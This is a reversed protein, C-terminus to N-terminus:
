KNNWGAKAFSLFIKIYNRANFSLSKEFGAQSLANLNNKNEVMWEMKAALDDVDAPKFLIGAGQSLLESIGGLDSALVPLGSAFARQIANPCNEYVLSPYVLCDCSFLFKEAQADGPWAFFKINECKGAQKRAENELSGSGVFLLEIDERKNKIKYFAKILPLVGKHKEIQGLFLFKFKNQNEATKARNLTKAVPNPLVYIRSRAFFNKKLHSKKLWDSPFIVTQPSNFLLRCITQYIVAAFGDVIGEQGFYMLGSAHLLQIDHVIHSHRIKLNRAALPCLFGVGMLNNTIVAECKEAGLIKKIKFYNIINFLNWVHWFFRFFKPFKNLNYYLSNLYYIDGTPCKSGLPKTSIVIIENGADALEQAITETIKEAGGRNFPKYLNNILCIKM